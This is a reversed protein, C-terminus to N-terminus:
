SLKLFPEATLLVQEELLGPKLGLLVHHGVVMQQELELPGSAYGQGGCAGLM